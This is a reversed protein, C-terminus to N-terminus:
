SGVPAPKPGSFLRKLWRWVPAIWMNWLDGLVWRAIKEPLYAIALGIEITVLIDFTKRYPIPGDIIWTNWTWNRVWPYTGVYTTMVDFGLFLLWLVLRIAFIRWRYEKNPWLFLEAASICAPVLWQLWPPRGTFFSVFWAIHNRLYDLTFGGGYYWMLAAIGGSGLLALTM